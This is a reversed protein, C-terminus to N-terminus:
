SYSCWNGMNSLSKERTSLKHDAERIIATILDNSAQCYQFRRVMNDQVHSYFTIAGSQKYQIDVIDSFTPLPSYIVVLSGNDGITIRYKRFVRSSLYNCHFFKRIDADPINDSNYKFMQIHQFIYDYLTIANNILMWRCFKDDPSYFCSNNSDYIAQVLPPFCPAEIGMLTFIRSWSQAVCVSDERQLLISRWILFSMRFPCYDEALDIYIPHDMQEKPICIGKSNLACELEDVLQQVTPQIYHATPLALHNENEIIQSSIPKICYEEKPLCQEKSTVSILLDRIKPYATFALLPYSYDEVLVGTDLGNNIFDHYLVHCLHKDFSKLHWLVELMRIESEKHERLQQTRLKRSSPRHTGCIWCKGRQLLEFDHPWPKECEPCYKVLDVNHIPCRELWQYNYAHSHFCEKACEPCHRRSPFIISWNKLFLWPNDKWYKEGQYVQIIARAMKKTGSDSKELRIRTYGQTGKIKNAMLFRRVANDDSEYKRMFLSGTNWNIM